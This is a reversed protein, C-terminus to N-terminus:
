REVQPEKFCRKLEANEGFQVWAAGVELMIQSADIEVRVTVPIEVKLRRVSKLIQTFSIPSQSLSDQKAISVLSM